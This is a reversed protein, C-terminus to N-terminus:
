QKMGKMRESRKQREEESINYERKQKFPNPGIRLEYLPCTKSLCEKREIDAEKLDNDTLHKWEEPNYGCCDFCKRIIIERLQNNTLKATEM